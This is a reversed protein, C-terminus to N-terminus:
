FAYMLGGMGGQIKIFNQFKASFPVDRGYLENVDEGTPANVKYKETLRKFYDAPFDKKNILITQWVPIDVSVDLPSKHSVIDIQIEPVEVVVPELVKKIKKGTPVSKYELVRYGYHYDCGDYYEEESESLVPEKICEDIMIFEENEEIYKEDYEFIFNVNHYVLKSLPLGQPLISQTNEFEERSFSAVRMGGIELHINKLHISPNIFKFKVIDYGQKILGEKDNLAVVHYSSNYLPVESQALTVQQTEMTNMNM